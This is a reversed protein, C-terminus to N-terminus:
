GFGHSGGSQDSAPGSPVKPLRKSSGSPVYRTSVSRGLAEAAIELREWAEAEIHGQVGLKRFDGTLVIEHRKSHHRKFPGFLPHDAGSFM